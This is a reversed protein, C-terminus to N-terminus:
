YRPSTSEAMVDPSFPTRCTARGMTWRGQPPSPFLATILATNKGRFNQAPGMEKELQLKVVKCLYWRKEWFVGRGQLNPHANYILFYPLLEKPPKRPLFSVLTQLLACPASCRAPTEQLDLHGRFQVLFDTGQSWYTNIEAFHFLKMLFPQPSGFPQHEPYKGDSSPLLLGQCLHRRVMWGERARTALQRLSQKGLLGRARDRLLSAAALCLMM